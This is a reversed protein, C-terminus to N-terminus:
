EVIKCLYYIVVIDSGFLTKEVPVLVSNKLFRFLFDIGYM